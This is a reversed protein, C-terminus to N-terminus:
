TYVCAAGIRRQIYRRMYNPLHAYLVRLCDNNSNSCFWARVRVRLVPEADDDRGCRVCRSGSAGCICFPLRQRPAAPEPSRTAARSRHVRHRDTTTRRRGRVNWRMRARARTRLSCRSCQTHTHKRVNSTSPSARCGKVIYIHTLSSRACSVFRRCRRRRHRHRRRRRVADPRARASRTRAFTHLM